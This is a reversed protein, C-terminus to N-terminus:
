LGESLRCFGPPLRLGQPICGAPVAALPGGGGARSPRLTQAFRDRRPARFTIGAHINSDPVCCTRRGQVRSDTPCLLIFSDQCPLLTWCSHAQSGWCHKLAGSLSCPGPFSSEERAHPCDRSQDQQGCWQQRLGPLAEPSTDQSCPQQTSELWPKNAQATLAAQLQQCGPAQLPASDEKQSAECPLMGEAPARSALHSSQTLTLPLLLNDTQSTGGSHRRILGQSRAM